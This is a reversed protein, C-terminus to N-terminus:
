RLPAWTKSEQRQLEQWWRTGMHPANMDVREGMMPTSAQVDREAAFHLVQDFPDEWTHMALDFTDNHIPLLWRGRLDQHAQM